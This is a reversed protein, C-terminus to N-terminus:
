ERSWLGVCRAPLAKHWGLLVVARRSTLLVASSPERFLLTLGELRADNWHSTDRGREVDPRSARGESVQIM